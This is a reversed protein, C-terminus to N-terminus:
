IFSDHFFNNKKILYRNKNNNRLNVYLYKIIPIFELQMKKNNFQNYLLLLLIFILVLM